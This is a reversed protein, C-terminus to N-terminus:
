SKSSEHLAMVASSAEEGVKGLATAVAAGHQQSPYWMASDSGEATRSFPKDEGRIASDAKNEETGGHV